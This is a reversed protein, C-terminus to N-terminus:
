EGEMLNDERMICELLLQIGQPTPQFPDWYGLSHLALPNSDLARRHFHGSKEEAVRTLDSVVM